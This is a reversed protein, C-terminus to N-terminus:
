LLVLGDMITYDHEVDLRYVVYHQRQDVIRPFCFERLQNATSERPLEIKMSASFCCHSSIISCCRVKSFDVQITCDHIRSTWHQGDGQQDTACTTM